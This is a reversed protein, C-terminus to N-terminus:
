TTGLKIKKIKQERWHSGQSQRQHHRPCKSIVTDKTIVLVLSEGVGGGGVGSGLRRLHWTQNKKKFKKKKVLAVADKTPIVVLLADGRQRRRHTRRLHGEHPVRQLGQLGQQGGGQGRGEVAQLAAQDEQQLVQPGGPVVGRAAGEERDTSPPPHMNTSSPLTM